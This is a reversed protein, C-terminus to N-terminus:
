QQEDIPGGDRIKRLLETRSRVSLMRYLRTLHGEVSSLSMHLASAIERNRRGEAVLGILQRDTDTLVRDSDVTALSRRSAALRAWPVAGMDDFSREASGAAESAAARDGLAMLARGLM